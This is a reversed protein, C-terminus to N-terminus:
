SRPCYPEGDSLIRKLSDRAEPSAAEIKSDLLKLLNIIEACEEDTNM